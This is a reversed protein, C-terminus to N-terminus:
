KAHLRLKKILRYSLIDLMEAYREMRFQIYGEIHLRKNNRLFGRLKNTEEIYLPTRRLDLALGRMAHSYCYFPNELMCVEALADMLKRALANIGEGWAFYLVTDEGCKKM